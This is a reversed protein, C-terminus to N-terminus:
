TCTKLNWNENWWPCNISCIAAFGDRGVGGMVSAAAGTLQEDDWPAPNVPLHRRWAVARWGTPRPSPCDVPHPTPSNLAPPPHHVLFDWVHSYTTPVLIPHQPPTWSPFRKTEYKSTQEKRKQETRKKETKKEKRKRKKEKRKKEKRKKAKRKKEM